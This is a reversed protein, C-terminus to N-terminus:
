AQIASSDRTRYGSMSRRIIRIGATRDPLATDKRRPKAINATYANTGWSRCAGVDVPYPIPALTVSDPHSINGSADATNTPPRAAVVSTRRAPERGTTADDHTTM